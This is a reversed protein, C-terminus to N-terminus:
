NMSRQVNKVLEQINKGTWRFWALPRPRRPKRPAKPIATEYFMVHRNVIPDYKKLAMRTERKLPSKHTYYSFGTQVSSILKVALRKSKTRLLVPSLFFM